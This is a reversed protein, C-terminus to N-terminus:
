RAHTDKPSHVEQIEAIPFVISGFRFWLKRIAVLNIKIQLLTIM